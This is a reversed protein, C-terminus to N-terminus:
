KYFKSKQKALSQLQALFKKSDDDARLMYKKVEPKGLPNLEKNVFHLILELETPPGSGLIGHGKGVVDVKFLRSLENM